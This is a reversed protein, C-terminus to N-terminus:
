ARGGGGPGGGRQLSPRVSAIARVSTVSAFEKNLQAALDQSSMNHKRTDPLSISSGRSGAIRFPVRYDRSEREEEEREGGQRQRGAGRRRCRGGGWLSPTAM